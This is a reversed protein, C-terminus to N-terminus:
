RFSLGFRFAVQNGGMAPIVQDRIEFRFGIRSRFWWTFGGAVYGGHASGNELAFVYGAGLFPVIRQSRTRNTFNWVPGMAYTVLGVGGGNNATQAAADASAGLGRYFFVEGGGGAGSFGGAHQRFGTQLHIYGQRNYLKEADQAAAPVTLAVVFALILLRRTMFHM